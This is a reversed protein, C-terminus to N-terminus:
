RRGATGTPGGPRRVVRFQGVGAISVTDGAILKRSRRREEEGNVKVAGALIMQKSHGGTAAVGAWKLFGDLPITESHIPVDRM